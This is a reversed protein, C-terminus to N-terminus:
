SPTLVVIPIQRKIGKQFGLYPSPQSTVLEWLRRHEDGEASHAQVLLTKGRVQIRTRPQRMLNRFWDPDTEQGWNSAVVIYNGADRYFALPTVYAKGSKRGVSHLLLISQNGWQSGLRGGTVQILFTDLVVAAKMLINM